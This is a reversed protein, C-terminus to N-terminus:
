SKKKVGLRLKHLSVQHAFLEDFALRACGKGTPSIDEIHKPKHVQHPADKWSAWGYSQMVEEPLWEPLAPVGELAHHVIKRYQTQSIGATLSYLPAVRDM